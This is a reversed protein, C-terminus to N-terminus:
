YVDESYRGENEMQIFYEQAEEKTKEGFKEIIGMLAHEVDISM